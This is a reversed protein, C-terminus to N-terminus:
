PIEVDTLYVENAPNEPVALRQGTQFDYMGVVLTYKGPALHDPLPVIMKDIMMEGPDWLSTPYAGHLPPADKQAVTEGAGNRLHVFTTYDVMLPAESRWYLTLTLACRAPSLHCDAGSSQILDYGLLTLHPGAGLPHPSAHQPNAAAVTLGPPTRGVKIPGLNVSTAATPQGEQWLPLSVAQQEVPLYWGVLLHYIGAPAGPKVRVNFPDTIIEGPAWLMTRYLEHALRDNGGWLEQRENILHNFIVYDDAMSALAQWYLTLPFDGGAEVRRQPLDFGLLAIQAGFNAMVPQSIAELAFHRLETQIHLQVPTDVQALPGSNSEQAFRLRYPSSRMHPEVRFNYGLGTHDIPLYVQGEPGLLGVQINDPLRERTTVVVTAREGYVSGASTAPEVPWLRYGIERGNLQVTATVVAAAPTLAAQGLIIGGALSANTQIRGDAIIAEPKVEAFSSQIVPHLAPQLSVLPALARLQIQYDGPVLGLLPLEIVDRVRDGPAWARTPYRGNLPQGVWRAQAQGQSDLVTLEFNYDQNPQDDARWLLSVQLTPGAVVWEYGILALKDFRALMQEGQAFPVTRIPWPPRYIQSALIASHALGLGALMLLVLTLRPPSLWASLGGILLLTLALGAPFFIHHGEATTAQGTLVFRLFPILGFLAIHGSLFLIWGRRPRDLHPWQRILGALALGYLGLFTWTLWDYRWIGNTLNWLWGLITDGARFPGFDGWQGTTLLSVLRASTEDSADSSLFPGLLGNVWGLEAVRNFYIETFVLWSGFTLAFGLGFLSLRGLAARWTWKKRCALWFLVGPILPLAPLPTYKTLSALGLLLGLGLYLWSQTSHQWTYYSLLFYLALWLALLSEYSIVSCNLVFTPTFAVLAVGAGALGPNKPYVRRLLEYGAILSAGGFLLTAWRGGYWLLVEGQYPDQTTLVRATTLDATGFVLQLRPNHDTSKIFPPSDLDLGRGSWGVLLHFLPPLDSKYGAQAREAPNLPLRDNSAIFRIFEFHAIQDSGENFPATLTIFLGFGLFSVIVTLGILNL